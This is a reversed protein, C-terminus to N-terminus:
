FYGVKKKTEMSDHKDNDILRGARESHNFKKNEIIIQPITKAASLDTFINGTEYLIRGVLTSKGDDVSGCICIKIPRLKM